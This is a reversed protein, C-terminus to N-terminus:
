ADMDSKAAAKYHELLEQTHADNWSRFSYILRFVLTASEEPLERRVLARLLTRDVEPALSEDRFVPQKYGLEELQRRLQQQDNLPDDADVNPKSDPSNSPDIITM